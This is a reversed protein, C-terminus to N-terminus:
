RRWKNVAKVNNMEHDVERATAGILSTARELAPITLSRDFVPIVLKLGM